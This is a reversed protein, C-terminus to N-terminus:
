DSSWDSRTIQWDSLGNPRLVLDSLADNVSCHHVSYHHNVFWTSIVDMKWKNIQTLQQRFEDYDTHCFYM